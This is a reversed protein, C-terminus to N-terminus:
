AGECRCDDTLKCWVLSKAGVHLVKAGVQSLEECRRPRDSLVPRVIAGLRTGRAGVMTLGRAGVITLSSAGYWARRVSKFFRRVSRRCSRAGGRGTGFSRNESQGSM